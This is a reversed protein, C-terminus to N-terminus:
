GTDRHFVRRVEAVRKATMLANMEGYLGATHLLSGHTRATHKANCTIIINQGAASVCCSIAIMDRREVEIGIIGIQVVEIEKVGGCETMVWKARMTGCEVKASRVHRKRVGCERAFRRESAASRKRLHRSVSFATSRM